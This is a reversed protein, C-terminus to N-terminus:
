YSSKIFEDFENIVSLRNMLKDDERTVIGATRNNMEIEM